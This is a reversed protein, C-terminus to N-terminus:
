KKALKKALATYNEAEKGDTKAARAEAKAHKATLRRLEEALPDADADEEPPAERRRSRSRSRPTDSATADASERGRSRPTEVASSGDDFSAAGAKASTTRRKDKKRPLEARPADDAEALAAEPSGDAEGRPSASDEETSEGRARRREAKREAKRQAKREEKRQAKREAKRQARRQEAADEDDQEPVAALELLMQKRLPSKPTSPLENADDAEAALDLLQQRRSPDKTKLAKVKRPTIPSWDLQAQLRPSTDELWKDAGAEEDDWAGKAKFAAGPPPRRRMRRYALALALLLASVGLSVGVGV